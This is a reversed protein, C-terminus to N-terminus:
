LSEIVQDTVQLCAMAADQLEEYFTKAAETLGDSVAKLLLCPVRNLECTVTVAASEMDCVDGEFKQHLEAKEEAKGVFKDGSCCTARMLGNNVSLAKSVLEPSPYLFIDEHEPLQAVKLDMFESCDFKYHVVRDVVCIKQLKMDNTLGGVVGFNVIVDVGYATILYQTGAAASLEGLGTHIIYIDQADKRVHYLDFGAPCPLEEREQYYAFISDTEIAVILGIKM